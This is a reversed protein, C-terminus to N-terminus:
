AKAHRKSISAARIPKGALMARGGQTWARRIERMCRAHPATSTRATGWVGHCEGGPGPVAQPEFLHIVPPRAERAPPAAQLALLFQYLFSVGVSGGGVIALDIAAPRGSAPARTM